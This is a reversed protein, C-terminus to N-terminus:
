DVKLTLNQTHSLMVSGSTYIGTVTLTYNGAPTGPNHVVNGGGGGCGAYAAVVVLTTALVLWLRRCAMTVGMALVSLWLVLLVTRGLNWRTSPPDLWRPAVTTGATTTVTVTASASSNASPTASTPSVTCTSLTLAAPETCTLAVAQNFGGLSNVNLTYTATQGATVTASPSPASISFDQGTGTLPITQPSGLANDTVGLTASRTGGAAPKFTVRIHCTAGAAV